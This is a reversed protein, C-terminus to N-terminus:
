KSHTQANKVDADLWDPMKGKGSGRAEQLKALGRKSLTVAHFVTVPHLVITGGEEVELDLYTGCGIGLEKRLSVPLNISGRSDIAILM